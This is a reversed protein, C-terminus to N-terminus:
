GNNSEDTHNNEGDRLDNIESKVEKARALLTKFNDWMNVGSIAKYNENISMIEIGCLVAAVFKTIVLPIDCFYGVFDALIFKEICFFLIIAGEYLFMKPIVVSLKRSTIAEKKKRAKMIGTITDISICLGVIIILAKIPALFAGIIALLNLIGLSNLKNLIQEKM